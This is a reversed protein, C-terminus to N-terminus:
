TTAPPRATSDRVILEPQLVVDDVEDGAQDREIMDLLLAAATRGMEVGSQSVTTLPPV